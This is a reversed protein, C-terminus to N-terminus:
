YKEGAPLQSANALVWNYDYERSVEAWILWTAMDSTGVEGNLTRKIHVSATDGDLRIAELEVEISGSNLTEVVILLARTEFYAEDYGEWSCEPPLDEVKTVYRVYSHNGEYKLRAKGANEFPLEDGELGGIVPGPNFTGEPLTPVTTEVSQSAATSPQTAGTSPTTEGGAAQCGTLLLLMALMVCFMKKM